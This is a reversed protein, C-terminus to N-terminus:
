GRQQARYYDKEGRRIGSEDRKRKGAKEMGQEM